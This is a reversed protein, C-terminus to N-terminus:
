SYIKLVSPLTEKLNFNFWQQITEDWSEVLGDDNIKKVTLIVLKEKGDKRRTAILETGVNGMFKGDVVADPLQAHKLGRPVKRTEVKPLQKEPKEEVILKRKIM